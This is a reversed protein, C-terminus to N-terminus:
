LFIYGVSRQMASRNCEEWGDPWWPTSVGLTRSIRFTMVWAEYISFNNGTRGSQVIHQIDLCGGRRSWIEQEYKGVEELVEELKLRSVDLCQRIRDLFM